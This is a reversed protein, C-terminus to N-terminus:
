LSSLYMLSMGVIAQQVYGSWKQAQFVFHRSPISFFIGDSGWGVGM